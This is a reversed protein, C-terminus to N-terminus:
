SSGIWTWGIRGSESGGSGIRGIRDARDSGGARRDAGDSGGAGIRGSRDERDSGGTGIQGIRESGGSASSGVREIRHARGIRLWIHSSAETGHEDLFASSFTGGVRGPRHRDLSGRGGEREPSPLLIPIIPSAAAGRGAAASHSAPTGAAPLLHRTMERACLACAHPSLAGACRTCPGM